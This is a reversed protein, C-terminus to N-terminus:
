LREPVKYPLLRAKYLVIGEETTTTSLIKFRSGRPLLIELEYEMKDSKSTGWISLPVLAPYGEEPIELMLIAPLNESFITGFKYAIKPRITTSLFAPDVVVQGKKAVLGNAGRLLVTGGKLLGFQFMSDLTSISEKESYDWEPVKMRLKPNYRGSNFHYFFLADRQEEGFNNKGRFGDLFANWEEASIEYDKFRFSKGNKFYNKFLQQSQTSNIAELQQSSWNTSSSFLTSCEIKTIRSAYLDLSTFLMVFLCINKM